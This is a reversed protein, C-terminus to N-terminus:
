GNVLKRPVDLYCIHGGMGLVESPKASRSSCEHATQMVMKKKRFSSCILENISNSPFKPYYFHSLASLKIVFLFQQVVACIPCAKQLILWGRSQNWHRQSVFGFKKTMGSTTEPSFVKWSLILKTDVKLKWVNTYKKQIYIHFYVKEVCFRSNSAKQRAALAMHFTQTRSKTCLAASDCNASTHPLYVCYVHLTPERGNPIPNYSWKYPHFLM